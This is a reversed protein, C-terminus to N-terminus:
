HQTLKQSSRTNEGLISLPDSLHAMKNYYLASEEAIEKQLETFAQAFLDQVLPMQPELLSTSSVSDSMKMIPLIRKNNMITVTRTTYYHLLCLSKPATGELKGMGM